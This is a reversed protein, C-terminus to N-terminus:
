AAQVSKYWQIILNYTQMYDRGVSRYDGSLLINLTGELGSLKNSDFYLNFLSLHISLPSIM